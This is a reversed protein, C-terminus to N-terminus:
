WTISRPLHPEPLNGSGLGVAAVFSFPRSNVTIRDADYGGCAHHLLVSLDSFARSLRASRKDNVNHRDRPKLDPPLLSGNRETMIM